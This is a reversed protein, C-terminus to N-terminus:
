DAEEESWPMKVSAALRQEGTMETEATEEAAEDEEGGGVEMGDIATLDFTGDGVAVITAVVEFPQGPKVNEPTEYGEPLTIKM